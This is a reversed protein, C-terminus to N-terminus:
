TTPPTENKAGSPDYFMNIYEEPDVSHKSGKPQGLRVEMHLHAGRSNGTNGVKGIYNFKYTCPVTKDDADTCIATLDNDRHPGVTGKKKVWSPISGAALHAYISYVKQGTGSKAWHEVIVHNGWGGGCKCPATHSRLPEAVTNVCGNPANTCKDKHPDNYVTGNAIAWVKDVGEAGALDIGYHFGSSSSPREGFKSTRNMVM